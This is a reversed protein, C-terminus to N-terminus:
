NIAVSTSDVETSGEPFLVKYNEYTQMIDHVYGVPESGRCYGFQVVPDKFYKATTKKLLYDAAVTWKDPDDGYKEALRRADGVHGQGVNYSALVFNRREVPDAIKDKWYDELWLIHEVGAQINQEPDKLRAIGYARGTRPMVQLLGVAGAWSVTNPDFRSEKFTQAALLRWDWGLREAGEKILDDYPSLQGGGMSSYESANRRRIARSNKFYRDHIAYYDPSKKMRGIWYDMTDLLSVANKRVGWAIQQPLSLATNIDLIPYYTRNVKAIDEDAVTLDFEGNAVKKIIAETEASPDDEIIIIDGGIEESLNRLRDAYASSHRVFVEKGILEVPSRILTKEIEHLKMQRWNDPKRQVLVQKVLNHYQTFAIRKKREKTVTLNYALIDGEGKNLRAFSKELDHEIEIRLEVGMSDAFAKLLEYEYGMTQGRYQFLGTSSNDILAIIYGRELIQDFDFDVVEETEEPTQGAVATADTTSKQCSILAFAVCVVSLSIFTRLNIM